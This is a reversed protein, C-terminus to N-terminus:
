IKKRIIINGETNAIKKIYNEAEDDLTNKKIVSQIDFKLNEILKMTDTKGENIRKKEVSKMFNDINFPKRHSKNNVNFPIYKKEENPSKIEFSDIINPVKISLNKKNLKKNLREKSRQKQMKKINQYDSLYEKRKKNTLILKRNNKNIEESLLSLEKNLRGMTKEQDDIVKKYMQENKKFEKKKDNYKIKLIDYDNIDNDNVNEKEENELNEIEKIKDGKKYKINDNILKCQNELYLKKKMQIRLKDQTIKYYDKKLKIKEKLDNIKDNISIIEERQLVRQNYEGIKAVQNDRVKNLAINEKKLNTFYGEKEKILNEYEVIKNITLAVELENKANQIKNKYSKILKQFKKEEINKDNNNDVSSIEDLNKSENESNLHSKKPYYIENLDSEIEICISSLKEKLKEYTKLSNDFNKKLLIEREKEKKENEENLKKKLEIESNEKDISKNEEINNNENSIIEDSNNEDENNNEENENEENENQEDNDNEREEVEDNNEGEEDENESEENEEQKINNEGDEEEENEENNSNSSDNDDEMPSNENNEDSYDNQENKKM